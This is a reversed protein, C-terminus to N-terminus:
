TKQVKKSQEYCENKENNIPNKVCFIGTCFCNQVKNNYYM